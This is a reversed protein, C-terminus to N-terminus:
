RIECYFISSLWRVRIRYPVLKIRLCMTKHIFTNLGDINGAVFPGRRWNCLPRNVPATTAVRRRSEEFPNSLSSHGANTVVRRRLM